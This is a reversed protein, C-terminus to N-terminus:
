AAGGGTVREVVEAVIDRVPATAAAHRRQLWAELETRAILIRAHRPDGLGVRLCPLPDAPDRLARRLTSVSLGTEDAVRQLSIRQQTTM